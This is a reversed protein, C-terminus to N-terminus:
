TRRGSHRVRGHASVHPIAGHRRAARGSQWHLVLGIKQLATRNQRPNDDAPWDTPRQARAARCLETQHATAAM